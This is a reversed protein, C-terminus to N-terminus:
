VPRKALSDINIKASGFLVYAAAEVGSPKDLLTTLKERHREQLGVDVLTM